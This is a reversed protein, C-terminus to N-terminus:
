VHARGIEGNLDPLCDGSDLFGNNNRDVPKGDAGVLAEVSHFGFGDSDGIQLTVADITKAHLFTLLSLVVIIFLESRKKMGIEMNFTKRLICDICSRLACNFFRREM